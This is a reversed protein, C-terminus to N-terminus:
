AVHETGSPPHHMTNRIPKQQPDIWRPPTFHPHGNIITIHWEEAHAVGHHHDCLLVLNCLATHGGDVWHLIHHAACWGPPRDCGPFACGKDRAILARRM